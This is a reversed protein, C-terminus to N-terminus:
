LDQSPGWGKSVLFDVYKRVETGAKANNYLYYPRKIPYSGDTITERSPAVAHLSPQKKINLAKISNRVERKSEFADRIRVYGIAGPTKAVRTMVGPFRQLVVASKTFPSKGLIEDEMFLLTGPHTEDTRVVTIPEARGGVQDWRTYEGKFLKRVQEMSLESVPNEPHTIIVIGGYGQLHEVIKVGREGALRNEVETISRSAMAVDAKLDILEAIGAEVLSGEVIEIKTGPNNKMFLKSLINVRGFMSDAGSVRISTQGTQARVNAITALTVGILAIVFFVARCKRM